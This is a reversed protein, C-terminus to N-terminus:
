ILRSRRRIVIIAATAVGMIVIAGGAILIVKKNKKYFDKLKDAFTTDEDTKETTTKNPEVYNQTRELFEEYTIDEGTIYEQCYEFNPNDDCYSLESYSNYRPLVLTITRLDTGACDGTAAKVKITYTIVKDAVVTGLKVTNDTADSYRYTKTTNTGDESVELYLDETINLVSVEFGKEMIKVVRNPDIIETEPDIYYTTRGTDVEVAQYTEKVTAALDNLQVQREYSCEAANVSNVVCFMLLATLVGKAIKRM